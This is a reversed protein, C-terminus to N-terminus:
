CRCAGVRRVLPDVVISIFRIFPPLRRAAPYSSRARLSTTSSVDPVNSYLPTGPSTHRRKEVAVDGHDYKRSLM